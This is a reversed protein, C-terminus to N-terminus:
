IAFVVILLLSCESLAVHTNFLANTIIVICDPKPKSSDPNTESLFSMFM